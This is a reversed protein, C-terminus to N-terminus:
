PNQRRREDLIGGKQLDQVGTRKGMDNDHADMEIVMVAVVYYYVHQERQQALHRECLHLLFCIMRSSFAFM